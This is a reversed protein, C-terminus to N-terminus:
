FGMARLKRFVGWKKNMVHVCSFSIVVVLLQLLVTVIFNADGAPESCIAVIGVAMAASLASVEALFKIVSKKM